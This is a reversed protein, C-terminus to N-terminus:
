SRVAEQAGQDHRLREKGIMFGKAKVQHEILEVCDDVVHVRVPEKGLREVLSQGM